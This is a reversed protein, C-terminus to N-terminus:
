DSFGALTGKPRDVFFVDGAEIAVLTEPSELILRGTEDITRFVGELMRTPMAIKVPTGLGAALSLWESRIKEFGAGASWVELWRVFEGSLACLVDQPVVPM